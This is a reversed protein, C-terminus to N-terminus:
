SHTDVVAPEVNTYSTLERCIGGFSCKDIIETKAGYKFTTYRLNKKVPLLTTQQIM